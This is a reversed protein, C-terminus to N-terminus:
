EHGERSRSLARLHKRRRKPTTSTHLHSAPKLLNKGRVAVVVLIFLLNLIFSGPKAVRTKRSDALPDHYGETRVFEPGRSFYRCTLRAAGSQLQRQCINALFSEIANERYDVKQYGPLADSVNNFVADPPGAFVPADSLAGHADPFM